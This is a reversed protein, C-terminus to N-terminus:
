AGADDSTPAGLVRTLSLELRSRVLDYADAAEGALCGRLETRTRETLEARAAALWRAATARHVGYRAALNDITLHDVLHHRLLNRQKPTLTAIAREFASKVASRLSSKLTSLEPDDLVADLGAEENRRRHREDGRRANLALRVAAVRVFRGMDGRGAAQVVRPVEGDDAMFLRERLQQMVEQATHEDGVQAAARHADGFYRAEFERLARADGAGCAVALAVECARERTVPGTEAALRHLAGALADAPIQLEPWADAIQERLAPDIDHTAM